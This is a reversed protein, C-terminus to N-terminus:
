IFMNYICLTSVVGYSFIDCKVSLEGIYYEDAIYGVSGRVTNTSIFSKGNNFIVTKSLGFDSIKAHFDDDILM